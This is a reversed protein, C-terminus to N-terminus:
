WVHPLNISSRLAVVTNCKQELWGAVWNFNGITGGTSLQVSSFCRHFLGLVKTPWSFIYIESPTGSWWGCFVWTEFFNGACDAAKGAFVVTKTQCVEGHKTAALMSADAGEEPEDAGRILPHSRGGHLCASSPGHMLVLRSGKWGSRRPWLATLILSYLFFVARM